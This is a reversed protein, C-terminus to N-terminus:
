NVDKKMRKLISECTNDDTDSDQSGLSESDCGQEEAIAHFITELEKVRTDLFHLQKELSEIKQIESSLSKKYPTVFPANM